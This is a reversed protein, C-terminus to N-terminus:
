ENRLFIPRELFLLLFPGLHLLHVLMLLELLLEVGDFLLLLLQHLLVFLILLLVLSLSFLLLFFLLGEHFLFGLLLLLEFCLQLREIFHLM